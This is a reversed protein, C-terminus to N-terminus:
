IEKGSAAERSQTDYPIWLQTGHPFNAFGARNRTEQTLLHNAILGNVVVVSSAGTATYLLPHISPISILEAIICTRIKKENSTPGTPGFIDAEGAL